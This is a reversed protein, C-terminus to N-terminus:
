DHLRDYEEKLLQELQTYVVKGVLLYITLEKQECPEWLRCAVASYYREVYNVLGKLSEAHEPILKM